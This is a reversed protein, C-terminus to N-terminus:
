IPVGERDINKHFPMAKYKSKNWDTENQVVFSIMAGTELEVPYINDLIAEDLRVSPIQGTLILLDYDSDPQADGRARSGYLIIRADPIVVGIARKCQTLVSQNVQMSMAIFAIGRGWIWLCRNQLGDGQAAQTRRWIM